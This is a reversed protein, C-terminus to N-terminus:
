ELSKTKLGTINLSQLHQIMEIQDMSTFGDPLTAGRLNTDSFDCYNLIANKFSTYEANANSFDSGNLSAQSFDCGTLISDHFNM